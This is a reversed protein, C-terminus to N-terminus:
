EDSMEEGIVKINKEIKEIQENCDKVLDLGEKYLRFADDLTVEEKQMNTLIEELEKFNEEISKKNDM